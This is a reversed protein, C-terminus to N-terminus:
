GGITVRIDVCVCGDGANYVMLPNIDMESLTPHDLAMRSLRLLVDEIADVDAPKEGRVGGLLAYAKLERLMRGADWPTLPALRFVIDKFAEVYIGGLGVMIMPGFQPDRVMGLILEKGEPMMKQVTVGLIEAGPVKSHARNVMDEYAEVLRTPGKIDLAVGGVDTKHVIQPSSIKLAVPYGIEDGYKRATEADEALKLPAYPIGYADLVTRCDEPSIQTVGNEVYGAFLKGVRDKDVKFRLERSVPRKTHTRREYLRGLVLMAQDPYPINPIGAKQLRSVPADVSGAGMFSCVITKDTNRSLRIIEDATRYIETMAQPTLIVLVADV